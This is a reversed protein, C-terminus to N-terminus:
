KRAERMEKFYEVFYALLAETKDYRQYEIVHTCRPALDCDSYFCDEINCWPVQM